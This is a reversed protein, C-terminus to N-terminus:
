RGRAIVTHTTNTLGTIKMEGARALVWGGGDVSYQYHVESAMYGNTSGPTIHDNGRPRSRRWSDADSCRPGQGCARRQEQGQDLRRSREVAHVQFSYPTESVTLSEFTAANTASGTTPAVTRGAGEVPTGGHLVTVVYHDISLGNGDSSGWTLASQPRSAPPSRQAPRSTRRSLRSAQRSRAARSPRSSARSMRGTSRRCASATSPATRWVMGRSRRRAARSRRSVPATPLLRASRCCM